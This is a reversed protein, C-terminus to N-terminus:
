VVTVLSPSLSRFTEVPVRFRRIKTACAKSDSTSALLCDSIEPVLIVKEILIALKTLIENLKFYKLKVRENLKLLKSKIKSAHVKFIVKMM